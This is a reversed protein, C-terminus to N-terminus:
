SAVGSRPTSRATQLVIAEGLQLASGSLVRCLMGRRGQVEQQLGPRLTEMLEYPEFVARAASLEEMSAHRKPARFLHLIKAL